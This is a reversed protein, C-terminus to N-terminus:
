QATDGGGQQFDFAPDKQRGNQGGFNYTIGALLVRGMGTQTIKDQLTPTKFVVVQRASDLVNQGTLLFSFRENLKHRYGLNLVANSRRYGQPLLQSGSYTANLQLFDRPTPQWSLNARGSATTGRRPMSVGGIQPDIESWM